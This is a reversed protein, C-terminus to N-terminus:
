REPGTLILTNSNNKGVGYISGGTVIVDNFYSSGSPDSLHPYVQSKVYTQTNADYVFKLVLPRGYIYLATKGGIYVAGDDTVTISMPVYGQGDIPASVPVINWGYADKHLLLALNNNPASTLSYYGTAWVNDPAIEVVGTLYSRYTNAPEPLPSAVWLNGDYYAGLGHSRSSVTYYGVAWADTSSYVSVDTMKEETSGPQYPYPDQVTVFGTGPVYRQFLAHLGSGFLLTARTSGVAWINENNVDGDVSELWSSVGPYETSVTFWTGGVYQLALTTTYVPYGTNTWSGVALANSSSFPVIDRLNNSSYTGPLINSLSWNTGDFKYLKLGGIAWVDDESTAVITNLEGSFSTFPPYTWVPTLWSTAYSEIVWGVMSIDRSYNNNSPDWNQEFITLTANGNVEDTIQVNSIIATHTIVNAPNQDDHYFSLVDGIKPWYHKSPDANTANDIADFTEPYAAAYNGVVQDGNTGSLPPVNFALYLYRKVLETCQFEWEGPHGTYFPKRYDGDLGPKPGCAKLGNWVGPVLQGDIWQSLVYPTRRPSSYISYYTYDCDVYYGSGNQWWPTNPVTGGASVKSDPVLLYGAMLAVVALLGVWRSKSKTKMQTEKNPQIISELRNSNEFYRRLKGGSEGSPL